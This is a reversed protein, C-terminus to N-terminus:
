STTKQRALRKDKNREIIGQDLELLLDRIMGVAEDDALEFADGRTAYTKGVICGIQDPLKAM